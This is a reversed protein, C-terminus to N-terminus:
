QEDRQNTPVVTFISDADSPRLSSKDPAPNELAPMPQESFDVGFDMIEESESLPINEVEAHFELIKRQKRALGADTMDINNLDQKAISINMDIEGRDRAGSEREEYLRDIKNAVATRIEGLVKRREQARAFEIDNRVSDRIELNEVARYRNDGSDGSVDTYTDVYPMVPVHRGPTDFVMSSQSRAMEDESSAAVKGHEAASAAQELIKTNITTDLEQRVEHAEDARGMQALLESYAYRAYLDMDTTRLAQQYLAEAGALDGYIELVQARDTLLSSFSRRANDTTEGLKPPAAELARGVISVVKEDRGSAMGLRVFPTIATLNTPWSNLPSAADFLADGVNGEAMRKNALEYQLISYLEILRPSDSGWRAPRRLVRRASERDNAQLYHEAMDLFLKSDYTKYELTQEVARDFVQRAESINGAMSSERVRVRMFENYHYLGEPRGNDGKKSFEVGKLYANEADEHLGFEYAFKGADGWRFYDDPKLEARKEYADLALLAYDPRAEGPGPRRYGPVGARARLKEARVRYEITLDKRLEVDEPELEFARRGARVMRDLETLSFEWGEALIIFYHSNALKDQPWAWNPYLRIVQELEYIAERYQGNRYFGWALDVKIQATARKQESRKARQANYLATPLGECWSCDDIAAQWIRIEDDFRKDARYIRALAMLADYNSPWLTLAAEFKRIASKRKGKELAASGEELRKDSKNMKRGLKDVRKNNARAAIEEPTRKPFLSRFIDGLRPGSYPVTRNASECPVLYDPRTKPYPQRFECVPDSVRPQAQAVEPMLLDATMTVAVLIVSATLLRSNATYVGSNRNM